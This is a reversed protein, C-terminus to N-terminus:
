PVAAIRFLRPAGSDDLRNTVCMTAGTGALPTGVPEWTGAGIAPRSEVQYKVGTESDWCVKVESVEVVARVGLPLAFADLELIRPGNYLLPSGGWNTFEARFDQATTSPINRELLLASAKDLFVYPHPPTFTNLVLDFTASGPSKALLRFQGFERNATGGGDGSAFLRFARLTVPAPTRWELFHVFGAPQSDQFVAAGAKGEYYEGGKAGLINAVDYLAPWGPLTDLPSGAVVVTGRSVDWLDDSVPAQASVSGSACLLALFRVLSRPLRM